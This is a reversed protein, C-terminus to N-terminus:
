TCVQNFSCIMGVDYRYIIYLLYYIGISYIIHYIIIYM